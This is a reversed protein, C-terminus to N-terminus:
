QREVICASRRREPGHTLNVSDDARDTLYHSEGLLLIRQPAARYAPGVWPEDGRAATM